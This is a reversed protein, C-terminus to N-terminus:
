TASTRSVIKTLVDKWDAGPHLWYQAEANVVWQGRYTASATRKRWGVIRYKADANVIWMGDHPLSATYEFWSEYMRRLQSPDQYVLALRRLLRRARLFKRPNLLIWKRNSRVRQQLRSMLTASSAVLTVFTKRRALAVIGLKEDTTNKLPRGTAVRPSPIAYAVILREARADAIDGLRGADCIRWDAANEVGIATAIHSIAGRALHALFLTKGCCSPSAIVILRDVSELVVLGTRRVM